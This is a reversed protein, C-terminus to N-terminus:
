YCPPLIIMPTILMLPPTPLVVLESAIAVAAWLDPSLTVTTSVSGCPLAVNHACAASSASSGSGKGTTDFFWASIRRMRSRRGSRLPSSITMSVGGFPATTSSAMLVASKTTMGVRDEGMSRCCVM